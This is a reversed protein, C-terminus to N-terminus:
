IVVASYDNKSSALPVTNPAATQGDGGYKAVFSFDGAGSLKSSETSSFSDVSETRRVNKFGSPEIPSLDDSLSSDEVLSAGFTERRVGFTAVLFALLFISAFITGSLPFSKEALFLYLYPALVPAMRHSMQCISFCTVRIPTPFVEPTYTYLGHFIISQGIHNIILTMIVLGFAQKTHTVIFLCCGLVSLGLRIETRRKVRSSLFLVVCSGIFSGVGLALAVKYTSDKVGPYVKKLELPLFIIINQGFSNFFWVLMLPILPPRCAIRVVSGFVKRFAFRENLFKMPVHEAENVPDANNSIESQSPARTGALRKLTFYPPVQVRNHYSIRHIIRVCQEYDKKLICFRVSEPVFNLAFVAPIGFFAVIRVLWQWGLPDMVAWALLVVMIYGFTFAFSVMASFFGRWATPVSEILLTAASVTNGGYMFGLFLRMIAFSTVGNAYSSLFGMVVCGTLCIHFVKKRGIVDSLRGFILVGFIMGIGTFSGIISLDTDQVNWVQEFRPLLIGLMNMEAAEVVFGIAASLFLIIHFRGVGMEDFARDVLAFREANSTCVCGDEMFAAGDGVAKGVHSIPTVREDSLKEEGLDHLDIERMEDNISDVSSSTKKELINLEVEGGSSTERPLSARFSSDGNEPATAAMSREFRFPDHSYINVRAIILREFFLEKYLYLSRILLPSAFSLFAFVPFVPGM